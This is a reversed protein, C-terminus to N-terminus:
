IQYMVDIYRYMTNLYGRNSLRHYIRNWFHIMVVLGGFHSIGVLKTLHSIHGCQEKSPTNCIALAEPKIMIISGISLAWAVSLAGLAISTTAGWKKEQLLMRRTSGSFLNLTPWGELQLM